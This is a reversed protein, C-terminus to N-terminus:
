HGELASTPISSRCVVGLDTFRGQRVVIGMGAQPIEDLLTLEPKLLLENAQLVDLNNM